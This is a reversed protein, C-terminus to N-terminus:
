EMDGNAATKSPQVFLDSNLMEQVVAENPLYGKFSVVDTLGEREVDARLQEELPGGGVFAVQLPTKTTRKVIGLARVIDDFGKKEVFRGVSLIRAPRDPQKVREAFPYADVDISVPLVVTKDAPFSAQVVRNKMDESMVFFLACESRVDDYYSPGLERLTLSVDYGYFTVIVPQRHGLHQRVLLYEKAVPGFHCHVVDFQRGAFPALLFVLKSAYQGSRYGSRRLAASILSPQRVAMQGIKVVAAAVMRAYPKPQDLYHTLRAMGHEYYRSSIESTDGRGFAFVEVHVGRDLLDAVQNIIFTETRLPFEGVIFAVRTKKKAETAM